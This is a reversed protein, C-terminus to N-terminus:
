TRGNEGPRRAADVPGGPQHRFINREPATFASRRRDVPHIQWTPFLGVPSVIALTKRSPSLWENLLHARISRFEEAVESFPASAMVMEKSSPEDNGYSYGFQSSLARLIDDQKVLKLEIAAEGFYLGKERQYDVVRNVGAVDLKGQSLLIEGM